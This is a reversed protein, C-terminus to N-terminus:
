VTLHVVIYIHGGQVGNLSLSKDDWEHPSMIEVNEFSDKGYKLAQFKFL